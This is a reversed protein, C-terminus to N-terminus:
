YGLWRVSSFPQFVTTDLCVAAWSTSNRDKPTRWHCLETKAVSFSVGIRAGRRKLVSYLYQFLQCNRRYSLSDLTITFNDVYSFMIGHPIPIHLVSVYIVFLLPSVPSGQPTGVQGPLFFNPSGQFM